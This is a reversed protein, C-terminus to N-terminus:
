LSTAVAWSMRKLYKICSLHINRSGNKNFSTASTENLKIHPPPTMIHPPTILKMMTMIFAASKNEYLCPTLSLSLHTKTSGVEKHRGLFSSWSVCPLSLHGTVGSVHIFCCWTTTTTTARINQTQLCCNSRHKHSSLETYVFVVLYRGMIIM